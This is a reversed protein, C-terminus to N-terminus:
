KSYKLDSLCIVNRENLIILNVLNFIRKRLDAFMLDCNYVRWRAEM